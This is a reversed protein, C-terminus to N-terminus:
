LDYKASLLVYTPQVYYQNTSIVNDSFQDRRIYPTNLINKSSLKFEWASGSKRYYLDANLFDYQSNTQNNSSRYDTYIYEAALLFGGPIVIEINVFPENTIFLQRSESSWYNAWISKMGVSVNPLETFNSKASVQYSQTFNTNQNEIFEIVNQFESYNINAKLRYNWKKYKKELSSLLMWRENALIANGPVSIRNIDQYAVSENIDNYRKQYNLRVYTNMHNFLNFNSYNLGFSHFWLNRLENNGMFLSNYNRIIVGTSLNAVDSFETNMAYNFSISKTKGFAYKMYFDPLILMMITSSDLPVQTLNTQYFHSNVGPNFTMKGIKTRYHLGIVRDEFSYKADNKFGEEMPEMNGNDLEQQIDSYYNQDLKDISLSLNIHNRPNILYYYDLNVKVENSIVEKGQFIKNEKQDVFPLIGDFPKLESELMYESQQKKFSWNVKASVINRTGFNKYLDFRQDLTFPNRGNVEVITNPDQGFTYKRNDVDTINGDKLFVNYRMQLTPNPKYDAKFRFMSSNLEQNVVSENIENQESSSRIYTRLNNTQITNELENLIGFVSLKWKKNPHYNLNLAGVNSVSNQTMNNQMSALGLEDSNLQVSSGNGSLNSLGGSFRFYDQMTFAQEGINNADGIFNINSKPSYHFINPHVSYRNQLGGGVEVDGFWLNKKGDKLEINLALNEDTDIGKMQGIDSYNTLLDIKDIVDAPINQVALKSDGDFFEKGDIMVKDVKKGQVTVSGDNDVEFGPLKNLVDGLKREQGNTFADTNYIITDGSITVPFEEVVEFGKLNQASEKLIVPFLISDKNLSIAHEFTEFGLFSCRIFYDKGSEVNLNFQGERNSFSFAAVTSDNQFFAMISAQELPVGLSDVVTGYVTSIQAYSWISMVLCVSTTILRKM